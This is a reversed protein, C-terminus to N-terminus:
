YVFPILRWSKGQYDQYATKFHKLLVNEELQIRYLVAILPAIILIGLSWWNEMVIGLGLYYM